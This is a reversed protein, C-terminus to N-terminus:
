DNSSYNPALFFRAIFFGMKDMSQSYEDFCDKCVPTIYPRINIGNNRFVRVAILSKEKHCKPCVKPLVIRKTRYYSIADGQWLCDFFVQKPERLFNLTESLNEISNIVRM